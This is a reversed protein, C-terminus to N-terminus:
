PAWGFQCCRLCIPCRQQRAQAKTAPQVGPRAPLRDARFHVHVLTMAVGGDRGRLLSSTFSLAVHSFPQISV